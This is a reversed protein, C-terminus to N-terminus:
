KISDTGLERFQAQRAIFHRTLKEVLLVVRRITFFLSPTKVPIINMQYTPGGTM